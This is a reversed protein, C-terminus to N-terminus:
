VGELARIFDAAARQLTDFRHSLGDIQAQLEALLDPPLDTPAPDERSTWDDCSLQSTGKDACSTDACTLCTKM